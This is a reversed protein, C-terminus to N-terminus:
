PPPARARSPRPPTDSLCGNEPPPRALNPDVTASPGTPRARRSPTLRDRGARIERDDRRRASPEGVAQRGERAAPRAAGRGQLLRESSGRRDQRGGSGAQGREAHHHAVNGERGGGRRGPGWS